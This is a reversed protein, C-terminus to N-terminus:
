GGEFGEKFVEELNVIFDKLVKSKITGHEGEDMYCQTYIKRRM